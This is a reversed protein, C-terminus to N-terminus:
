IRNSKCANYRIKPKGNYEKIYPQKEYIFILFIHIGCNIKYKIVQIYKKPVLKIISLSISAQFFIKTKETYGTNNEKIPADIGANM